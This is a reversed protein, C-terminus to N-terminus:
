MIWPEEKRCNLSKWGSMEEVSDAWFLCITHFRVPSSLGSLKCSMCSLSCSIRVPSFVLTRPQQHLYAMHLDMAWFLTFFSWSAFFSWQESHKLQLAHHLFDLKTFFDPTRTSQHLPMTLGAGLDQDCDLITFASVVFLARLEPSSLGTPSSFQRNQVHYPVDSEHIDIICVNIGHCYM